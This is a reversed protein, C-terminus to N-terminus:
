GNYLLAKLRAVLVEVHPPRLMVATDKGPVRAVDFAGTCLERWDAASSREGGPAYRDGLLLALRGSYPQPAYATLAAITAERVRKFQVERRNARLLDRKSLIERAVSLKESLFDRRRKGKLRALTQLYLWLRGALFRPLILQRWLRHSSLRRSRKAGTAPPDLMVVLNVARGDAILCRALEFMVLAGACAGMLVCPEGCRIERMEERLRAVADEIREHSMNESELGPMELSYFPQDDGLAKSLTAYARYNGGIGLMAFLPPKGGTPQVPIVDGSRGHRNGDEIATALAAITPKDFLRALPLAVGCREGIEAFIGAAILSHGGLDFFDDKVGFNAHGFHRAWIEAVIQETSTRPKVSMSTTAASLTALAPLSDRDIKGIPTLPLSEMTVYDSPVMFAPLEARLFHRLLDPAASAGDKAVVYAVLRKDGSDAARLLVVCERVSPHRNLAAEIEGPEIRFGRLKVQDDTRGLFEINGDALRRARDGSRYLRRGDVVVFREATLAPQNLYERALGDGGIYLEGPVGEPVPRRREDLIYVLTNAIPKGIPVSRGIVNERTMVHCCALTTNETPGYGNILRHGPPLADLMRRVHAVSLAEGGAMLWRVGKLTELELDVMQHFLASTLFLSSVQCTRITEALTKLSPVGPPAIALRAGNLLSGWLELTSADFSIPGFQLFTEEPGANMYNTNKVLRVVSRHEVCVGKPRGTSGSTYIVYALNEAKVAALPDATSEREIADSEADICVVKGDFAPLLDRLSSQTVLVPAAADRLMLELRSRPYDSDLPVYAGGAKLIGLIAVVMEISREVCIGVKVEPGVGHRRLYHALRKARQNLAGYSLATDGSVLAAAAPNRAVQEEFLAHISQERPYDSATNNWEVLHRRDAADLTVIDSVHARPDATGAELVRLYRELMREVTAHDFLDTNCDWKITIREDRLASEADAQKEGYPIVIVNMDFKASGNHPYSIEGTLGPLQVSPVPSDHFSFAVQCLPNRSPDRPLDLSRVIVDFPLAQHALANRAVAHVREVLEIFTPDGALNVRLPLMNVTMGILAEVEKSERNAYAAGVLIDDQGAYRRLLSLFGALMVSFLSCRHTRAFARLAVACPPPPDAQVEDGRFSQISPRVRDTPLELVPLPGALQSKWYSLLRLLVEGQLLNRQWLAFDAFQVPLEALPSAQGARYATYVALLEKMFVGFSWGDHILHHELHVLVHERPGLRLLTWQVLPLKAPDFHHEFISRLVGPAAAVIPLTVPFPPHIVQRWEGDERVFTTRLAEHRRVIEGLTRELVAVNLDGRLHITVQNNYALNDPALEHFFLIPDQPFSTPLNRDRSNRRLAHGAGAIGHRSMADITDALAAVNRASFIDTIALPVDFAYRLRACVRVAMLSHGGLEFYDDFIGVHDTALAEAWVAAVRAETETRPAAAEIAVRHQRRPAPLAARDVKGNRTLPWSQLAVFASPVLYAPLSKSLDTRLHSPTAGREAIVYAVLEKEGSPSDRLVVTSQIVDPRRNLAAEIEGLEIRYGRLKVQYDVRGCFELQGDPRTRARDGSKYLHAGQDTSFPDPIFREATLDPRNLYGRAVGPGGVYIEGM